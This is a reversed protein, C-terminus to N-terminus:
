KGRKNLHDVIKYYDEITDVEGWFKGNTDMTHIDKQGVYSYLVNEWWLGYQQDHVLANLRAIFENTFAAKIKALGIYEANRNEITLEKGFAKLIGNKNTKFFYDGTLVRSKDCVLVADNNNKLVDDLIKEDFYVDGNIFLIDDIEEGGKKALFGQAFWLSAISNTIKYFPNYFYEVDLNSLCDKIYEQRYGTVIAVKINKSLLLKVTRKIIPESNIELTSKPKDTFKQLRTGIGAAMIVAAKM